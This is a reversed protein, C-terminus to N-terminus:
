RSRLVSDQTVARREHSPSVTDLLQNYVEAIEEGKKEWNFYKAVRERARQALRERHSDCALYELAAALHNIVQEPSRAPVKIGTEETVQLATGGADLCIVPRGAAMAEVSVWGSSDHLAPHLLVDCEALKELVQSRPLLGWFKVSDSAHLKRALKQLRRREPGEGILWYESAPFRRHFMGFAKLGLHFGKLHLLNGISAIRFPASKRAPIENLKRIEDKPLAAHSIV